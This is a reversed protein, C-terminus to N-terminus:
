WHDFTKKARAFQRTSFFRERPAAAVVKRGASLRGRRRHCDPKEKECLDTEVLEPGQEPRQQVIKGRRARIEREQMFTTNLESDLM